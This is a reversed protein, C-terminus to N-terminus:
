QLDQTLSILVPERSHGVLLHQEHDVVKTVVQADDLDILGFTNVWVGREHPVDAPLVKLLVPVKEELAHLLEVLGSKHVQSRARDLPLPTDHHAPGVDVM